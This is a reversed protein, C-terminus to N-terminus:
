VDAVALGLAASLRAPDFGSVIEDGVRVVPLRRVGLKMLEEM